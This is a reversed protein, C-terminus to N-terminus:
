FLSFKGEYWKVRYGLYFSAYQDQAFAPKTTLPGLAGFYITQKKWINIGIEFGPVVRNGEVKGKYLYGSTVESYLGLSVIPRFYVGIVSNKIGVAASLDLRLLTMSIDDDYSDTYYNFAYVMLSPAVGAWFFSTVNSTVALGAGFAPSLSGYDLAFGDKTKYTFNNQLVGLQTFPIIKYDKLFYEDKLYSDSSYTHRASEEYPNYNGEAHASAAVLALAAIVISFHKSM